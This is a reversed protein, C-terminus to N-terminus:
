RGLSAVFVTGFSPTVVKGSMAVEEEVEFDAGSLVALIESVLGPVVDALDRSVPSFVASACVGEAADVDELGLVEVVLVESGSVAAVEDSYLAGGRV